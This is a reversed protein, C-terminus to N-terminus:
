DGVKTTLKKFGHSKAIKIWPKFKDKKVADSMSLFSNFNILEFYEFKRNDLVNNKIDEAGKSFRSATSLYIGKNSDKLFMAGVFERVPAVLEVHEPNARRKVQVLIPDDSQIILLDIGGDGTKGVHKVECQYHDSFVAQAIEELKYPDISYLIEKKRELENMLVHLPINKDDVNYKKVIGHCLTDWNKTMVRDFHDEEESFRTLSEWWRCHPCEWIDLYSRMEVGLTFVDIDSHVNPIKTKCFPCYGRKSFFRNINNPQKLEITEVEGTKGKRDYEYKDEYYDSYDIITGM